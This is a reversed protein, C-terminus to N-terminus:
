KEGIGKIKDLLKRMIGRIGNVETKTISKEKSFEAIDRASIKTKDMWRLDEPLIGAKALERQTVELEIDTKIEHKNKTEVPIKAPVKIVGIEDYKKDESDIIEKLREEVEKCGQKGELSCQEYKKFKLRSKRTYTYERKFYDNDHYDMFSFYKCKEIFTTPEIGYKLYLNMVKESFYIKEGQYEENYEYKREVPHWLTAEVGKPNEPALILSKLEEKKENIEKERQEMYLKNNYKFIIEDMKKVEEYFNKIEESSLFDDLQKNELKLEEMKEETLGEVIDEIPVLPAIKKDKEVSSIISTKEKNESKLNDIESEINKCTERLRSAEKYDNESIDDISKSSILKIGPLVNTIEQLIKEKKDVIESLKM